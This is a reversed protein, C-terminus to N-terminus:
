NVKNSASGSLNNTSSGKIESGVFFKSLLPNILVRNVANALVLAVFITTLLEINM